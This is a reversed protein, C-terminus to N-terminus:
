RTSPTATGGATSTARASAWRATACCASTSAITPSGSTGPPTAASPSAPAPWREAIVDAARREDVRALRRASAIVVGEMRARRDALTRRRGARSRDRPAGAAARGLVDLRLRDRGCRRGSGASVRASQRGRRTPSADGNAGRAGVGCRGRRRTAAPLGAPLRRDLSPRGAAGSLEAPRRGPDGRRGPPGLRGRAPHGRRDAAPGPRPQRRGPLRRRAGDADVRAAAALHAPDFLYYSHGKMAKPSWSPRRSPRSTAARGPLPRARQQWAARVENPDVTGAGVNLWDTKPVNWSYGRLDDHLLLEPEGDRGIRTRAVAGPDARFEHEQVGVPGSPRPPALLRAVPCHTGGAGVLHRRGCAQRGVLDGDATASSTRAGRRGPAADAGSAACCFTTSSSAASSGAAAPSPAIRAATASTAPTGSGCGARTNARRCSWRTGSRRAVALRRVAQRASVRRSRRDRRAGRGAGPVARLHQGGSWRRRRRRRLQSGVGDSRCGCPCAARRAASTRGLRRREAVIADTIHGTADRFRGGPRFTNM